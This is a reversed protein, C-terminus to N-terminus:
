IFKDALKKFVIISVVVVALMLGLSILLEKGGEKIQYSPSNSSQQMMIANNRITQQQMQSIASYNNMIIDIIFQPLLCSL